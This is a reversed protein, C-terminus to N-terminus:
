SAVASKSRDEARLRLAHGLTLVDHHWQPLILTMLVEELSNLWCLAIALWLAASHGFGFLSVTAACLGLGWAKAIYTHFSPAQGFKILSAAYVAIQAAVCVLLPGRFALLVAPHVWWVSFAVSSYLCVDALSDAQRLGVTSVGLRRAIIGDFIDSLVAAVYGVLFWPGVAHDAADILLLLAIAFRFAVLFGPIKNLWVM